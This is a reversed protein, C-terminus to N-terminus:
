NDEWQPLKIESLNKVIWVEVQQMFNSMKKISLEGTGIIIEETKGFAKRTEIGLFKKCFFDHIAQPNDGNWDGILRCWGRFTNQQNRSHKPEQKYMAVIFPQYTSNYYAKLKNCALDLSWSNSVTFEKRNTDM